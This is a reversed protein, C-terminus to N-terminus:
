KMGRLRKQGTLLTHSPSGRVRPRLIYFNPDDAPLPDRHELITKFRCRVSRQDIELM